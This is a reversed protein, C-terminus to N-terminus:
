GFLALLWVVPVNALAIMVAASGLDKARKALAHDELSVRDTAAEIGSNLLEVILVLLVSGVMVAKRLGDVQLALATPILLLALLAEQRFAAEHRMAAVLGDLSYSFANFIRKIGRGSKYPSEM